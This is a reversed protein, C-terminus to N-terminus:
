NAAIKNVFDREDNFLKKAADCMATTMTNQNKLIADYSVQNKAALEKYNAMEAASIKAAQRTLLSKIDNRVNAISSKCSEALRQAPTLSDTTAGSNDKQTKVNPNSSLRPATPSDAAFIASSFLAAAIATSLIFSLKKM